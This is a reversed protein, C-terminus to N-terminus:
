LPLVAIYTYEGSASRHKNTIGNKETFYFPRPLKLRGGPVSAHIEHRYNPSSPSSLEITVDPNLQRIAEAIEAVNMSELNEGNGLSEEQMGLIEEVQNAVNLQMRIDTSPEKRPAKAQEKSAELIRRFQKLILSTDLSGISGEASRYDDVVFAKEKTRPDFLFGDRRREMGNRIRWDIERKPPEGTKGQKRWDERANEISFNVNNESDRWMRQQVVRALNRESFPGYRDDITNTGTIYRNQKSWEAHEKLLDPLKEQYFPRQDPELQSISPYLPETDHDAWPLLRTDMDSVTKNFTLSFLGHETVIAFINRVRKTEEDSFGPNPIEEGVQRIPTLLLVCREKGVGLPMCYQGFQEKDRVMRRMIEQMRRQLMQEESANPPLPVDIVRQLDELWYEEEVQQCREQEPTVPNFTREILSEPKLPSYNKEVGDQVLPRDFATFHHLEEM